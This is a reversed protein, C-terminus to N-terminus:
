NTTPIHEPHAATAYRLGTQGTLGFMATLHLPDAGTNRAEDLIRDIRLQGVTVPLGHFLDKLWSGSVPAHDHASRRTLLLHANSTRPWRDHRYALYATIAATTFADLTRAAGNLDIRRNPLDIDDLLVRRIQAPGLAQVGGLALTVRLAPNHNAAHGLQRLADPGLPTPTKLHPRAMHLRHSPNTFILRQSKLTRFLDRVACADNSRHTRGDLWNLVDRGAVQRLTDYRAAQDLLFPRLAHVRAVITARERAPRRPNEGRLVAIWAQLEHRMQPPLDALQDTIWVTLSDPLDEILFGDGAITFVETLRLVPIRAAGLSQVTSAKIPEGPEHCGALMRLGRRVDRQTRPPWGDREALIASHHLLLELLRPDRAPALADARGCDRPPDCLLEQAWRPTPAPTSVARLSPPTKDKALQAPRKRNRQLARLMDAFFLQHGTTAAISNDAGTRRHNGAVLGAQKRCLRCVGDRVPIDPRHCTLCRGLPHAAAFGRCARCLRHSMPGWAFCQECGRAAGLPAHRRPTAVTTRM